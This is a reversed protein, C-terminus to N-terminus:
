FLSFFYCVEKFSSELEIKRYFQEASEHTKRVASKLLSMLPTPIIHLATCITQM